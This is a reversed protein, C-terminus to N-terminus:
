VEVELGDHALPFPLQPHQLNSQGLHVLLIRQAQLRHAQQQLTERDLHSDAPPHPLSCELLALHADQILPPLGEHWGTDGSYALVRGAVEVRLSFCPEPGARHQAVVPLIHLGKELFPTKAQLAVYHLPFATPRDQYGPYLAAMLARVRQALGPPGVLTLPQSRRSNVMADLLVFPLGGFHDGHLHSICIVGISGPDIGAQRLAYLTTAGCDLLLRGGPHSLLFSAHLRGGSHFADGCGLVRLRVPPASM